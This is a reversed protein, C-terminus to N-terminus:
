QKLVTEYPTRNVISRGLTIDDVYELEDGISVGRAITTLKVKSEQLKKYLYFNTTDGELSTTLALIVEIIKGSDVKNILPAINLDDPGIGNMPSIIGGLVHYVGKYQLTAEIAMVDRIDEVVCVTESSRTPNSCIECIEYDSINNCGNCHKIEKRMKIIAEGFSEVQQEDQQLLYLVLRLATRKGVGPLRAFENVADEILKSSFNM